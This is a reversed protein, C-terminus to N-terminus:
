NTLERYDMSGTKLLFGWGFMTRCLTGMISNLENPQADSLKPMRTM